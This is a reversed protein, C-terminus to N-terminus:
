GTVRARRRVRLHREGQQAGGIAEVQRADRRALVRVALTDVDFDM